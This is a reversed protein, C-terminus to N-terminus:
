VGLYTASDAVYVTVAHHLLGAPAIKQLDFPAVSGNVNQFTWDFSQGGSVFHVTTGSAVNVHRTADTIVIQRDAAPASTASFSSLGASALLLAAIYHSLKM